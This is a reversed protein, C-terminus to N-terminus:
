PLWSVRAATVLAFAKRANNAKMARLQPVKFRCQTRLKKEAAELEPRLLARGDSQLERCWLQKPRDHRVYYDQRHRGYGTTHGLQQWGSVKYSIGRFLQGDVFSEFLPTRDPRRHTLAAM